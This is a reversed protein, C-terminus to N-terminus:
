PAILASLLPRCESSAIYQVFTRLTGNFPRQSRNKRFTLPGAWKYGAARMAITVSHLAGEVQAEVPFTNTDNPSDIVLQLDFTVSMPVGYDLTSVASAMGFTRIASTTGGGTAYLLTCPFDNLAKRLSLRTQWANETTVVINGPKVADTFGSRAEMAATTADILLKTCNLAM